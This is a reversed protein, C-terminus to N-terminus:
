FYFMIYLSGGMNDTGFHFSSNGPQNLETHEEVKEIAENYRESKTYSKTSFQKFLTLNVEAGLAIQPCIFYEVGASGTIGAFCSNNSQSELFRGNGNYINQWSTNTTPLQNAETMKNGWEAATSQSQSAFLLSAGFIGQIRRNGKRYEAGLSLNFGSNKEKLVDTVKDESLPNQLLAADDTAYEQFTTSGALIGINAKFAINDTFMYKGMLSVTPRNLGPVSLAPTGGLANLSNNTSNNFANGLYTFIPVVDFGIAIDGQKPLYNKQAKEQATVLQVSCLVCLLLVIKKM